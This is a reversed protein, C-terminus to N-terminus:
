ELLVMQRTTGFAGAELRYLYLGSPLGRAEFTTQYAGPALPEDVLTAVAQGLVNFVELRVHVAQPVDFGITTTPNFPNPYNAHLRFAPPLDSTGREVDTALADINVLIEIVDDDPDPDENNPASAEFRVSAGPGAEGATLRFSGVYTEGGESFGGTFSHTIRVTGASFGEPDVEVITEEDDADVTMTDGQVVFLGTGIIPNTWQESATATVTCADSSADPTCSFTFTVEEGEIATGHSASADLSFDVFTSETVRTTAVATNNEPNLDRPFSEAIEVQNSVVGARQPSARYAVQASEGPDLIAAVRCTMTALALGTDDDIATGLNCNLPLSAREFVLSDAFVLDDTEVLFAAEPGNNTVTVTYTLFDGAGASDADVTKTIAVDAGGRVLTKAQAVNNSPTPDETSSSVRALNTVTYGLNPVTLTPLTRAQYTLSATQGSALTPLTCVLRADRNSVTCGSPASASLFALSDMSVLDLLRVEAADGPGFNVIDVTYTLTDGVFVTDPEARKSVVLDALMPANTVVFLGDANNTTDPDDTTGTGTGTVTGVGRETTVLRVGCRVTEGAGVREVTWMATQGDLTGPSAAGGCDGLSEVDVVVTGDHRITIAVEIAEDPGDNTVEVEAALTDGVTAHVTDEQAASGTAFRSKLLTGMSVSGAASLDISLLTRLDASTTVEANGFDVGTTAAGAEVTVTHAGGQPFTQQWGDQLVERVTYTGAELDDIQYTGGAGTTAAPEGGDQQGNGNEDVYITWGALGPEGGDRTGDRDQDHWKLGTIAGPQPAGGEVPIIGSIVNNGPNPDPNSQSVSATLTQDGPADFRMSVFLETSGRVVDRTCVVRQATELTCALPQTPHVPTASLFTIGPSATITLVAELADAPGSVFAGFLDLTQGVTYPPPETLGLQPQSDTPTQARATGAVIGFALSLLICRGISSVAVSFLPRATM